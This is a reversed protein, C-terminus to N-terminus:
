LKSGTQRILLRKVRRSQKITQLRIIVILAVVIIITVVVLAVTIVETKKMPLSVGHPVSLKLKKAPRKVDPGNSDL